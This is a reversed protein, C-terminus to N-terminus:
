QVVHVYEYCADRLDEINYNGEDQKKVFFLCIKFNQLLYTLM